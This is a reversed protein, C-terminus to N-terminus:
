KNRNGKPIRVKTKRQIWCGIYYPHGEKRGLLFLDGATPLYREYQAIQKEAREKVSPDITKAKEWMDIALWAVGYQNWSKYFNCTSGSSAYINGLFMYPDGWTPQYYAAREAWYRARELADKKSYRYAIRYALAAREKRSM